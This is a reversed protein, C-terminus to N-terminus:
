GLDPPLNLREVILQAIQEPSLNGTDFVHRATEYFKAREALLTKLRQTLAANPELSAQPERGTSNVATAQLLPRTTDGALRGVLTELEAKLYCLFELNGLMQRNSERLIIGGGTGIVIGSSQENLLTALTQSELERFASEGETAFFQSVACGQQKEIVSDTDVFRWGLKAAVFQGCTTKGAGPPGILVIRKDMTLDTEPLVPPLTM